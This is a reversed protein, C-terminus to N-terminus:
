QYEIINLESDVPTIEANPHFQVSIWQESYQIANTYGNSYSTKICINGDTDRFTDGVFLDSFLGTMKEGNRYNVKM